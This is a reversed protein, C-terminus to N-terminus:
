ELLEFNSKKDLANHPMDKFFRRSLSLSFDHLHRHSSFSAMLALGGLSWANTQFGGEGALHPIVSSSFCMFFLLLKSHNLIHHIPFHKILFFLHSLYM